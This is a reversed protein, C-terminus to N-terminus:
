ADETESFAPNFPPASPTLNEPPAIVSVSDNISSSQHFIPDPKSSKKRKWLIFSFALLSIVILIPVGVVLATQTSASSPAETPMNNAACTSSSFTTGIVCCARDPYNMGRKDTNDWVNSPLDSQNPCETTVTSAYETDNCVGCKSSEGGLGISRLAELECQSLDIRPCRLTSRSVLNELVDTSSVNAGLAKEFDDILMDVAAVGLFLPPSVSRDYVPASVGTGMKGGLVFRYPDVWASWNKDGGQGLGSAFLKYYSSMASILDDNALDDVPTWIGNTECALRKTVRNDAEQGLSYTFITTAQNFNTKLNEIRQNVLSITENEGPGTSIKGDTMFLIAVNCGTTLEDKVTQEITDFATKFADYFNTGGKHTLSKIHEMMIEKNEATARILGEEVGIMSAKDSFTVIAFRDAVSLTEVIISAAEKALEMQRGKHMSGSVDIVLVVDKPGSSAAVFWPRRRPDFSGCEGSHHAPIIRFVGATSGFYMRHANNTNYKEVMFPEALRSHCISEIVQPDTPNGMPGDALEAPIMVTSQSKDWLVNCNNGDNNCASDILRRVDMCQANPYVSSCDDYNGESCEALAAPDCRSTYLSEIHDRFALVSAEMDSLISELEIKSAAEVREVPAKLLIYSLFLLSLCM